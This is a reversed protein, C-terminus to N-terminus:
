GLYFLRIKWSGARSRHVGSGIERRSKGKSYLYSFVSAHWAGRSVATERDVHHLHVGRPTSNLLNTPSLSWNCNLLDQNNQNILKIKSEGVVNARKEEDQDFKALNTEWIKKVVLLLNFVITDVFCSTTSVPTGSPETIDCTAPGHIRSENRHCHLFVRLVCKYRPCACIADRGKLPSICM